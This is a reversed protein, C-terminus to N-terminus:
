VAYLWGGAGAAVGLVLTMSRAVHAADSGGTGSGTGKRGSKGSKGSSKANVVSSDCLAEAADTDDQDCDVEIEEEDSDTDTDSEPARAEVEDEEEEFGFSDAAVEEPITPSNEPTVDIVEPAVERAVRKPLYSALRPPISLGNAMSVLLSSVLLARLIFRVM